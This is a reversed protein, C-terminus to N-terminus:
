SSSFIVPWVYLTATNSECIAVTELPGDRGSVGSYLVSDGM